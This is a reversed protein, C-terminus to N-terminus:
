LDFSQIYSSVFRHIPWDVPLGEEELAELAEREADRIHLVVPKSWKMAMRVQMKFIRKQDQLPTTNKSSRDLGCEGIAICNASARSILLEFQSFMYPSLLDSAYHPHCGITYYVSPRSLLSRMLPSRSVLHEMWIQPCCFNTIFGALSPHEMLPYAQVFHDYTEFDKQSKWLISFDLHCHSDFLVKEGIKDLIDLSMTYGRTGKWNEFNPDQEKKGRKTARREDDFETELQRQRKCSDHSPVSNKAVRPMMSRNDSPAKGGRSVLPDRDLRYVTIKVPVLQFVNKVLTRVFAWSLGDRGCGLRPMSINTVGHSICHSRMAELSEKLSIYLPKDSYKEKTVLCYIYRGREELVSLGGVRAGTDKLEDIRGFKDRFLKAIGKGLKYDQSICHCLSETNINPAGFLNGSVEKITFESSGPKQTTQPSKQQPKMENSNSISIVEGQDRKMFSDKRPQCHSFQIKKCYKNNHNLDKDHDDLIKEAIRAACQKADKKKGRKEGTVIKDLIKVSTKWDQGVRIFNYSPTGMKLKKFKLDLRYVANDFSKSPQAHKDPDVFQLDPINLQELNNQNQERALTRIIAAIESRKTKIETDPFWSGLSTIPLSFNKIPHKFFTEVYHLLFLGCDEGNSQLPVKPSSGPMTSASFKRYQCENPYIRNYEQTLFDRLSACLLREKDQGVGISDFLLICPKKDPDFVQSGKNGDKEQEM